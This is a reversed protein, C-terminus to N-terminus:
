KKNTRDIINLVLGILAIIFMSTAFFVSFLDM